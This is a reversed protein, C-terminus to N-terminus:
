SLTGDGVCMKMPYEDGTCLSITGEVWSLSGYARSSYSDSVFEVGNSFDGVCGSQLRGSNRTTLPNSVVAGYKGDPISFTYGVTATSTWSESYSIGLSTSLFGEILTLSTGLSVSVTNGISYGDTIAVTATTSPASFVVSSM